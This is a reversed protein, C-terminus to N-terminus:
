ELFACHANLKIDVNKDTSNM